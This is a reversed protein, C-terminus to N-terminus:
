GFASFGIRFAAFAICVALIIKLNDVSVKQSVRAGLFAGPIVALIVPLALQWEIQATMAKGLFAALTSLFVIALNTGIAIRTPVKLYFIMLPILIFSGGQGVLGGLLGVAAAILVAKTRSFAFHSIDPEDERELKLMMLVAATFAMIAFIILLLQNSVYYSGAGGLFSAVFLTTGMWFALGGSFYQSRKHTLGGSLCAALGQIVTLGAVTHMGLPPYQLLLPIFLLLPALIIGGGIGLLGSLFGTCAALLAVVLSLEV